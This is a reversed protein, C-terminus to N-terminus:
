IEIALGQKVAGLLALALGNGGGSEHGGEVRTQLHRRQHLAQRRRRGRPHAGGVIDNDVAAVAEGGFIQEVVDGHGGVAHQHMAGRGGPGSLHQHHRTSPSRTQTAQKGRQWDSPGHRRTACSADDGGDGAEDAAQLRRPDQLHQQPLGHGTTTEHGDVQTHPCAATAVVDAAGQAKVAVGGAGRTARGRRQLALPVM